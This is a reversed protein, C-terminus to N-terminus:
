DTIARRVLAETIPVKYANMSLPKAKRLAEKVATEVLSETITKERLVEEAGKARYPIPAVGGLVISANSVLGSAMTITAAVSSIAFDISKRLRFKLYRQKTGLMPHSIFIKTIVENSGLMNRDVAYLEELPIVREGEKGVIEVKADLAILAPAMDSPSVAMCKKYGIISHYANQGTLAPCIKGGKRRCFFTLGTVPSRRYYWCMVDQCLNGAITAMNRLQPAAVSCAAKALMSYKDRIIESAEIQAITTLPGIELGNEDERIYALGPITKINVLIQPIMIKNKMLSVVDVGGAIIRAREMNEDLISIAEEITKANIHEM